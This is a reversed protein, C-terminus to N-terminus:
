KHFIKKHYRHLILSTGMIILLLILVIGLILKNEKYQAAQQKNLAILGYNSQLINSTSELLSTQIKKCQQLAQTSTTNLEKTKEQIQATQENIQCQNKYNSYGSTIAAASAAFINLPTFM